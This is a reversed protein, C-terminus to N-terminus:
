QEVVSHLHWVPLRQVTDYEPRTNSLRYDLDQVSYNQNLHCEENDLAAGGLYAINDLRNVVVGNEQHIMGRDRTEKINKVVKDYAFEWDVEQWKDSGPARYLPTTIRKESTYLQRITTGKSCLTGENIPHDPDGETYIVDDEAQM